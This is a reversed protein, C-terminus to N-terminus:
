LCVLRVSSITDNIQHQAVDGGSAVYPTLNRLVEGARAEQRPEYKRTPSTRTQADVDLKAGALANGGTDTM